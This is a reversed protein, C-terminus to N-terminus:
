LELRGIECASSNLQTLLPILEREQARESSMLEGTGGGLLHCWRGSLEEFKMVWHGECVIVSSEQTSLRLMTQVQHM